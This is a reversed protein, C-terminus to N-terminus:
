LAVEEIKYSVYRKKNFDVKRESVIVWSNNGALAKRLEAIRSTLSGVGLNTLAILQTLHKGQKLYDWVLRTQPSLGVLFALDKGLVEPDAKPKPRKAM